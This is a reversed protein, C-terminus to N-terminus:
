RQVHTNCENYGSLDRFQNTKQREGEGKTGAEGSDGIKVSSTPPVIPIAIADVTKPFWSAPFRALYAGEAGSKTRLETATLKGEREAKEKKRCPNQDGVFNEKLSNTSKGDFLLRTHDMRIYFRKINNEEDSHTRSSPAGKRSHENPIQPERREGLHRTMPKKVLKIKITMTDFSLIQSAASGSHVCLDPLGFTSSAVM